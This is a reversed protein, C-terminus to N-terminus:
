INKILDLEFPEFNVQNTQVTVELRTGIIKSQDDSKPVNERVFQGRVRQRQDAMKKMKPYRIKKQFCRKERKLRFKYLAAERRIIQNQHHDRSTGEINPASSTCSNLHHQCNEHILQEM